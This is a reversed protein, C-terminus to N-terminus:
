NKMNSMFFLILDLVKLILQLQVQQAIRIQYDLVKIGEALYNIM